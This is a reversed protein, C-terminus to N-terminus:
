FALTSAFLLVKHYIRKQNYQNYNEFGCLLSASCGWRANVSPTSNACRGCSFHPLIRYSIEEARCTNCHADVVAIFYSTYVATDWINGSNCIRLSSSDGESRKSLALVTWCGCGCCVATAIRCSSTSQKISRNVATQKQYIKRERVPNKPGCM